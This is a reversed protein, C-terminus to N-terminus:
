DKKKKHEIRIKQSFDFLSRRSGRLSPEPNRRRQHSHEVEKREVPPTNVMKRIVETFEEENVRLPNPVVVDQKKRKMTKQGTVSTIMKRDSSEIRESPSLRRSGLRVSASSTVSPRVICNSSPAKQSASVNQAQRHNQDVVTKQTRRSLNASIGRSTGLALEFFDRVCQGIVKLQEARDRNKSRTM